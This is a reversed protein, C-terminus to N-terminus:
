FAMFMQINVVSGNREEEPTERVIFFTGTFDM